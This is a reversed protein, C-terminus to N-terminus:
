IDGKLYRVLPEKHASGQEWREPALTYINPARERGDPSLGPFRGLLARRALTITQHRESGLRPNNLLRDTQAITPHTVSLPGLM